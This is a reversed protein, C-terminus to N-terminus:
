QWGRVDEGWIRRIFDRWARSDWGAFRGRQVVLGNHGPDNLYYHFVFRAGPDDWGRIEGFRPVNFVLTDGWREVTYYGRAFRLLYGVDRHDRLVQVLSDGRLLGDGKAQLLSDGGPRPRFVIARGPADFVSRYGTYENGNGDAAVVYWLLSNLPTPTTFYRDYPIAQQRLQREVVRDIRWKNVLCYCLYVSSLVLGFRAWRKRAPSDRRLILLALFAIGLPCSYLPDAVFLVNFTVRYSSFPEFWGTGYANFADIFIHVLMQIEFFLWWQKFTMAAASRDTWGSGDTRDSGDARASSDARDLRGAGRARGARGSRSARRAVWALLLSIVVVFLLSHTIGRHFWVDRASDLWFSAVFDIDPLNAAIAGILLAKKGLKEGALVEGLAAGLVIHTITDM